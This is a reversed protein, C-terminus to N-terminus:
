RSNTTEYKIPGEHVMGTRVTEYKKYSRAESRTPFLLLDDHLTPYRIIIGWVCRPTKGTSVDFM